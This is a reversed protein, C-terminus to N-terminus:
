GEDLPRADFVLLSVASGGRQVIGTVVILPQNRLVDRLRDYVNPKVVLDLLGSEDELSMFLIGKATGPRQRVAVLGGVQLREGPRAQKVQWTSRVNQRRLVERYHVLLQRQPSLGLLEYEWATQDPGDLAPLTVPQTPLDLDFEDPRYDLDGLKWLM